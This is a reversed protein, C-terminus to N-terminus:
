RVNHPEMHLTINSSWERHNALEIEIVHPRRNCYYFEVKKECNGLIKSISTQDKSLKIEFKQLNFTRNFAHQYSYRKDTRVFFCIKIWGEISLTISM